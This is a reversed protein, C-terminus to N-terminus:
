QNIRPLTTQTEHFTYIYTYYLTARKIAYLINFMINSFLVEAYNGSTYIITPIESCNNIAPKGLSYLSYTCCRAHSCLVFHPFLEGFARSSFINRARCTLNFIVRGIISKIVSIFTRLILQRMLQNLGTYTSLQQKLYLHLKLLM